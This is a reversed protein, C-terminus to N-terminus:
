NINEEILTAKTTIVEDEGRDSIYALIDSVKVCYKNVYGESDWRNAFFKATDLNFTYSTGELSSYKNFGRYVIVSDNVIKKGDLHLDQLVKMKVYNPNGMRFADLMLILSEYGDEVYSYSEVLLEYKGAQSFHDNMFSLYVQRVIDRKNHYTLSKLPNDEILGQHYIHYVRVKYNLIGEEAIEKAKEILQEYKIVNDLGKYHNFVLTSVDVSFFLESDEYTVYGIPMDTYFCLDIIYDETKSIQVVKKSM